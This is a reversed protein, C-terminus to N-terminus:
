PRTTISWSGNHWLLSFLSNGETLRDGVERCVSVSEHLFELSDAPRDLDIYVMGINSLTWAEGGRDGVERQHIIAEEFRALADVLRRRRWALLGICTISMATGLRDGIEQRVTLAARHFEDAQDLRESQLYAMGLSALLEAEGFRDRIRRASELGIHGTIIWDDFFNKISYVSWLVAPLQWALQHLEAHAAARTASVLNAQESEYWRLADDYEAFTMPIVDAVSPESVIKRDLPAITAMANSATYLYWVLARQLIEHRDEPTEERMAQDTAYARLLDHFQYRGRVRQELMHAGVLADLLQRAQSISIGAIVAAAPLSFEAGPHLGLLRFLRAAAEPLARYSWAFVSRVADADEDDEVTLADWLVSEDLLDAILENLLM